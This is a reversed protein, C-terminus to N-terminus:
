FYSDNCSLAILIVQAGLLSWDVMANVLRSDTHLYWLTSVVGPTCLLSESRVANTQSIIKDHEPEHINKQQKILVWSHTSLMIIHM